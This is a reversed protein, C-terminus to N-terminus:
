VYVGPDCSVCCSLALRGVVHRAISGVAVDEDVRPLSSIFNWKIDDTNPYIGGDRRDRIFCKEFALLQGLHLQTFADHFNPLPGEPIAVM